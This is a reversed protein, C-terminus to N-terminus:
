CMIRGASGLRPAPLREGQSRPVWGCLRDDHVDENAGDELVSDNWLSARAPTAIGPYNRNASTSSSM